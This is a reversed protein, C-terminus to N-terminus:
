GSNRIEMWPSREKYFTEIHNLTTEIDVEYEDIPSPDRYGRVPWEKANGVITVSETFGEPQDPFKYSIKDMYFGSDILLRFVEELSSYIKSRITGNDEYDVHWFGFRKEISTIKLQM